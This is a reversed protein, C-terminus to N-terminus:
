TPVGTSAVLEMRHQLKDTDYVAEILYPIEQYVIRKQPTVDENYRVTIEHSIASELRSSELRQVGSVARIDCWINREKVWTLTFGGGGDSTQSQSQLEAYHRLKGPQIM